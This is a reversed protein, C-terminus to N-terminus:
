NKPYGIAVYKIGLDEAKSSEFIRRTDVIIAPEKMADKIKELQYKKFEDHDTIVLVLDSESIAQWVDSIIQGGFSDESFPDFVFVKSGKELLSPIIKEAPSNRTDSVNAKYAVGLITITSNQIQKNNQNLTKIVLDVVHQPM